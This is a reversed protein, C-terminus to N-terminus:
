RTVGISDPAWLLQPRSRAPTLNTVRSSAAAFVTAAAFHVIPVHEAFVRQVEDFLRKREADDLSAMQRLMLNDIAAEWPTAPASQGINWVHAAGSSLWFDPSIAPDTDTPSIDYYVADYGRGSLFTKIVEAGDLLVVDVLVGLAKLDDRIVACAREMRTRGKQSLLSFRAAKGQRDDLVGDGDRDTLGISALLERARAPDHPPRELSTFHWRANAPTIPGFVPAGAGLFVTDAFRRRDVALSIAQRLEDRQLWDRRPDDAFAGPKLNFWLGDATYSMGLDLLQLRGAEAGRKLLAYDEPRMESTTMDIEGADLRLLETNQDAVVEVVLRDLRPLPAGNADKRFYRPNRTLITRQGPVYEAIVFPGLGALEGPPTDLGWASAFTGAELAAALRHKPLIPLNDLLRMGPAFLTPFTILVTRPDVAHATLRRGGPSLAGALASGTRADHVADLSFVVDGATLPQGDSFQVGERLTVTYRLGDDSRTWGEALWPEVEQTARNIRVLKAQTLISAILDTSSDNRLLRNFTQPETRISVVLQGGRAASGGVPDGHETSAGSGSRLWLGGAILLVALVM